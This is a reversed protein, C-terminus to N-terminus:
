RRETTRLSVSSFGSLRIADFIKVITGNTVNEDASVSIPYTEKTFTGLEVDDFCSGLTELTVSKENFWIAGSEEVSITVGRVDTAVSTSSQPLNMKLGPLSAFTTSVLFFLILQFIVDLMPSLDISPIGNNRRRSVHMM